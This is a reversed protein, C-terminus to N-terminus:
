RLSSSRPWAAEDAPIRSIGPKWRVGGPQLSVSRLTACRLQLLLARRAFVATKNGLSCITNNLVAFVPVSVETM